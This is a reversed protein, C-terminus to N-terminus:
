CKEESADRQRCDKASLQGYFAGPMPADVRRGAQSTFQM